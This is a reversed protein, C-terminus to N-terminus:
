DQGLKRGEEYVGVAADMIRQLFDHLDQYNDLDKIHDTMANFAAHFDEWESDLPKMREAIAAERALKDSEKQADRFAKVVERVGNEGQISQGPYLKGESILGRLDDVKLLSMEILQTMGFDRDGDETFISRPKDPQLLTRAVRMYNSAHLRNFKLTNVAYETYNKCGAYVYLKEDHVIKLATAVEFKATDLKWYVSYKLDTIRATIDQIKHYMKGEGTDLAYDPNDYITYAM